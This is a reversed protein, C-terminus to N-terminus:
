AANSLDDPWLHRAEDATVRVKGTDSEAQRAILHTQVRQGALTAVLGPVSTAHPDDLGEPWPIPRATYSTTGRQPREHDDEGAWLIMTRDEIPSKGRQVYVADLTLRLADGRQAADWTPWEEWLTEARREAAYNTRKAEELAERAEDVTAQRTRAGDIYAAHAVAARLEDDGLYATLRAEADELVRRAREVPQFAPAPGETSADGVWALVEGAVLPDIRHAMVSAPASCRGGTHRGQCSYLLVRRGDRYTAFTRRMAYRCGACRVLGALLASRGRNIAGPGGKVANAAEWERLTVIAPHAETNRHDGHWAEGLYARNQIIVAPNRPGWQRGDGRPAHENLYDALQRWSARGARRTFLEVVLPGTAPEPVLPGTPNGNKNPPGVRKYGFPPVRTFHIGREIATRNSVDWAETALDRQYQAMMGLMNLHAKGAATSLDFDEAVSVLQGGAAHIRELAEYIRPVSRGFRDLRPVILGDTDGVEIRALAAQFGPRRLTGGSQDLDEHWAAITVGHRDAWEQIQRRQVDPSIFSDGSRGGVRSVRVYGDLRTLPPTSRLKM